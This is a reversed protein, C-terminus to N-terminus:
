QMLASKPGKISSDRAITAKGTVTGLIATTTRITRTTHLTTTRRGTHGRVWRTALWDALHQALLSDLSRWKEDSFWGYTGSAM